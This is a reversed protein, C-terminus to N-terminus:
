FLKIGDQGLHNQGSGLTMEVIAKEYQMGAVGLFGGYALFFGSSTGSYSEWFPYSL